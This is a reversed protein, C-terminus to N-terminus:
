SFNQLMKQVGDHRQFVALVTEWCEQLSGVSDIVGFLSKSRRPHPLVFQERMGKYAGRSRLFLAIAVKFDELTYRRGNKEYSNLNLQLRFGKEDDGVNLTEILTQVEEAVAKLEQKTELKADNQM